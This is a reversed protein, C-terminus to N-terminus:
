ELDPWIREDVIGLVNHWSFDPTLKDFEMNFKSYAVSSAQTCRYRCGPDLNVKDCM